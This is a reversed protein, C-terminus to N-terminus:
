LDLLILKISWRKGTLKEGLTFRRVAAVRAHLIRCYARSVTDDGDEEPLMGHVGKVGAQRLHDFFAELLRMGVRLGSKLTGLESTALQPDISWHAQAPYQDLSPWPIERWSRTLVWSITQYTQKRRYRWSITRGLVRIILRPATKLLLARTYKKTDKCGIAYGVVRGDLEAVFCSEPEHDMYYDAFLVSLVEEDEFFPRGRLGSKQCIERVRERDGPQFRRVITHRVAQAHEM